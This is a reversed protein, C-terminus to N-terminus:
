IKKAYSFYAQQIIKYFHSNALSLQWKLFTSTWDISSLYHLINQKIQLFNTKLRM